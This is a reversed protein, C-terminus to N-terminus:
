IHNLLNQLDFLQGRSSYKDVYDLGLLDLKFCNKSIVKRDREFLGSVKIDLPRVRTMVEYDRKIVSCKLKANSGM